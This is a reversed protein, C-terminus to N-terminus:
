VENHEKNQKNESINRDTERITVIEDIIGMEEAKQSSMYVDKSLWLKLEKYDKDIKTHKKFIDMYLNDLTEVEMYQDKLDSTKGDLCASAEHLMIRTHPHACRKGPTGALLIWAAASMAKGLAITKIDCKCSQMTDYIALADYVDGGESNIYFIIEKNPNLSELFKIRKILKIASDEGVDEDLFITRTKLFHIDILNDSKTPEDGDMLPMLLDCDEEM